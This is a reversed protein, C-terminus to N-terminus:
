LIQQRAQSLVYDYISVSYRWNFQDNIINFLLELLYKFVSFRVLIVFIDRWSFYNKFMM